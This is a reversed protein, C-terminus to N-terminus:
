KKSEKANQEMKQYNDKVEQSAMKAARMVEFKDANPNDFLRMDELKVGNSYAGRYKIPKPNFLIDRGSQAQTPDVQSPLPNSELKTSKDYKKTRIFKFYDERKM